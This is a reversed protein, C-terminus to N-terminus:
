WGDRLKNLIFFEGQFQNNFTSSNNTVRHGSTAFVIENNYGALSNIEFTKDQPFNQVIEWNEASDGADSKSTDKKCSVLQGCIVAMIVAM